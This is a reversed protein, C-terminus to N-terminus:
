KLLARGQAAELAIMSGVFSAEEIFIERESETPIALEIARTVALQGLPYLGESTKGFFSENFATLNPLEINNINV